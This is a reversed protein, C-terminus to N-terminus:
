TSLIRLESRDFHRNLQFGPSFLYFLIIGNHLSFDVVNRSPIIEENGRRNRVNRLPEGSVSIKRSSVLSGHMIKSQLEAM